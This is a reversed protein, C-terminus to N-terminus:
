KANTKWRYFSFGWLRLGPGGSLLAFSSLPFRLSRSLRALPLSWKSLDSFGCDPSKGLLLPAEPFLVSSAISSEKPPCPPMGKGDSM